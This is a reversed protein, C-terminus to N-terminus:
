VVEHNPQLSLNHEPLPTVKTGFKQSSYILPLITLRSVGALARLNPNIRKM